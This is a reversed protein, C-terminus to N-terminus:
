SNRTLFKTILAGIFLSDIMLARDILEGDFVFAFVNVSIISIVGIVFLGIDTVKSMEKAEKGM